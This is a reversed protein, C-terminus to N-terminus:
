LVFTRKLHDESGNENVLAVLRELPAEGDDLTIYDFFEFVRPDSVSRLETNAFGGGMVLKTQPYHRKVWQGCRLAALLNGPFPVSIAILKPQTAKMHSELLRIMTEDVLTVPKQLQDYLSDFSSASRALKEAYRSFGFHPDLCEKISDALDELFMTAVHKAKDQIGMNGFAWDLDGVQDFRSAEPLFDRKCILHALTPNHGQ